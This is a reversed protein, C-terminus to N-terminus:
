EIRADYGCVDASLEVHSSILAELSFTGTPSVLIDDNEGLICAGDCLDEELTARVTM